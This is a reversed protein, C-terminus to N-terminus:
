SRALARLADALGAARTISRPIVLVTDDGALTGLIDPHHLADLELGVAPARGVRTRVIVMVENHEISVIMGAPFAAPGPQLRYVWNGDEGVVREAGLLELDRSVTSQTTSFGQVALAAVLEAQTNGGGGTLLLKRLAQRRAQTETM